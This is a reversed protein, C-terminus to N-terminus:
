GEEPYFKRVHRPARTLINRVSIIGVLEDNELVPLRRINNEALLECARELPAEPAISILPSSMIEKAKVEGTRGSACIKLMIDRDTVIGAPKDESTIVVSGIGAVEMDESIKSVPTYEDETIVERTMVDGVELLEASIEEEAPYFKHVYEPAQTLINRVSVIGVLEGNELVPLRRIDNEAMLECAKEVPAGPGITILPSSMIEKAKIEGTRRAAFIKIIIDRDTVIGAPKGESTIVVSSIKSLDMDRSIVTVSVDEDETIVKPTMVDEVKM